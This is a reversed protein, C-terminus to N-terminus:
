INSNKEDLYPTGHLNPTRLVGGVQKNLSDHSLLFHGQTFSQQQLLSVEYTWSHVELWDYTEVLILGKAVVLLHFAPFAVPVM